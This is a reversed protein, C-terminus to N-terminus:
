ANLGAVTDRCKEMFMVTDTSFDIFDAGKAMWKKADGADSCYTGVLHGKQKARAFLDEMAAAVKPHSVDGQLGM